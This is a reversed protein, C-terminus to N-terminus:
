CMHIENTTKMSTFGSCSVGLPNTIIHKNFGASLLLQVSVDLHEEHKNCQWATLLDDVDPDIDGQVGDNANTYDHYHHNNGNTM